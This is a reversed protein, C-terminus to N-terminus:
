VYARKITALKWQMCTSAYLTVMPHVYYGSKQSLRREQFLASGTIKRPPPWNLIITTEVSMGSQGNTSKSSNDIIINREM